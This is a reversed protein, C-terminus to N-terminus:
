CIRDLRWAGYAWPRGRKAPGIINLKKQFTRTFIIILWFSKHIKWGQNYDLTSPSRPVSRESHPPRRGRRLLEGSETNGGPLPPRPLRLEQDESRRSSFQLPVKDHEGQCDNPKEKRTEAREPGLKYPFWAQYENAQQLDKLNWWKVFQTSDLPNQMGKRKVVGRGYQVTTSSNTNTRTEWNKPPLLNM